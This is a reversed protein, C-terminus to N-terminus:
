RKGVRVSYCWQAMKTRCDVNVAVLEPSYMNLYDGSGYGSLEQSHMAQITEITSSTTTTEHQMTSRQQRWSSPIQLVVVIIHVEVIGPLFPSAAAATM